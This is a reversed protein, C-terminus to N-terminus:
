YNFKIRPMRWYQKQRRQLRLRASYTLFSGNANPETIPLRVILTGNKQIYDLSKVIDPIALAEACDWDLLGEKVPLSKLILLSVPKSLYWTVPYFNVYRILIIGCSVSM